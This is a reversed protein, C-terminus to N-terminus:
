MVDHPIDHGFATSLREKPTPIRPQAYDLGRDEAPKEQPRERPEEPPSPEQRAETEDIDTRKFLQSLPGERMSARKGGAM